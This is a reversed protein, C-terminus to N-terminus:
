HVILLLIIIILLLTVLSISIVEAQEMDQVLYDAFANVKEDPVRTYGNRGLLEDQKEAISASLKRIGQKDRESVSSYSQVTQLASSMDELSRNLMARKEAPNETSRVRIAADNFYKKMGDTQGSLGPAALVMMILAINAIMRTSM